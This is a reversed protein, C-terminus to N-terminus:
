YFVLIMKGSENKVYFNQKQELFSKAWSSYFLHSLRYEAAIFESGAKIVELKANALAKAERSEDWALAKRIKKQIEKVNTKMNDGINIYTLM